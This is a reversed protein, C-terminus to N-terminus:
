TSRRRRYFFITALPILFIGFNLALDVANNYIIVRGSVGFAILILASVLAFLGLIRPIEPNQFFEAIMGNAM